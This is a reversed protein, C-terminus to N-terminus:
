RCPWALPLVKQIRPSLSVLAADKTEAYEGGPTEGVLYDWVQEMTHIVDLKEAQEFLVEHLANDVTFTKGVNFQMGLIVIFIVVFSLYQFLNAYGLKVEDWTEIKRISVKVNYWVVTANSQRRRASRASRETLPPDDM